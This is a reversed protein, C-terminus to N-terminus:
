RNNYCVSLKRRIILDTQSHTHTLTHENIQIHESESNARMLPVPDTETEKTIKWLTVIVSACIAEREEVEWQIWQRFVLHMEGDMELISNEGMLRDGCRAVPSKLSLPSWWCCWCVAYVVIGMELIVVMGVLVMREWVGCGWCGDFGRYRGKEKRQIQWHEAREEFRRRM